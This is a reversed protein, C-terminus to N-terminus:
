FPLDSGSSEPEAEAAAEVKKEVASEASGSGGDDALEFNFVKFNTYEKNAEKDYRNCVDVDGIKIRQKATLHLAKAACATGVFDVYGSFDQEYQGTKPNKRNISIRGRTMTESKPFIEWVTCFTNARFGM